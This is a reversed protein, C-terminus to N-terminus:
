LSTTFTVGTILASSVVMVGTLVLFSEHLAEGVTFQEAKVKSPQPRLKATQQQGLSEPRDVMWRWTAPILLVM